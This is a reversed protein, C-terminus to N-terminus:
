LFLLIALGLAVRYVVFPLMGIREVFRIFLHICSFGTIASIVIGIFLKDWEVAIELQVAQVTLLTMSGFIVPIALLFAFQAAHVRTLGLLLAATITIGSRSTGPLLAIVQALGILLAQLWTVPPAELTPSTSARKNRGYWDAFLLLLGFGITCYAIM